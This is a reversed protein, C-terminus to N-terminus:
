SADEREAELENLIPRMDKTWGFSGPQVQARRDLEIVAEELRAIRQQDTLNATM